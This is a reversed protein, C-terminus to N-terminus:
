SKILFYKATFLISILLSVSSLYNIAFQMMELGPNILIIIFQYFVCIIGWLIYKRYFLTCRMYCNISWNFLFFHMLLFLLLGLFGMRYLMNLFSNHNAILFMGETYDGDIYYMGLNDTLNFLYDSVYAAGFGIGLFNTQAIISLENKWVMLRWLSNPDDKIINYLENSFLFFFISIFGLVIYLKTITNKALLKIMQNGFFFIFLSFIAALIYASQSTFVLPLLFIVFKHKSFISYFSISAVFPMTYPIAKIGLIYESFFFIVMFLLAKRRTLSFLLNSKTFTYALGLLLLLEYVVFYHRPLYSISFNLNTVNWLKPPNFFSYFVYLVSLVLLSLLCIYFNRSTNTILYKKLITKRKTYSVFFFLFIELLFLVQFINKPIFSLALFFILFQFILYKYIKM